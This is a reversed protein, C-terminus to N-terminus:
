RTSRASRRQTHPCRGIALATLRAQTIAALELAKAYAHNSAESGDIAVLIKEFPM